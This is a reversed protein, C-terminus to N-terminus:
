QSTIRLRFMSLNYNGAATSLVQTGGPANFSIEDVNRTSLFAGEIPFNANAGIARSLNNAVYRAMSRPQGEGGLQMDLEALLDPHKADLIMAIQYATVYSIGFAHAGNKEVEGLAEVIKDEMGCKQWSSM